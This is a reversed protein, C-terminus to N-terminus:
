SARRKEALREVEKRDYLPQESETSAAAKLEGRLRLRRVTQTSVRLIRGAEGSTIYVPRAMRQEKRQPTQTTTPRDQGPQETDSSRATDRGSSAGDGLPGVKKCALAKGNAM